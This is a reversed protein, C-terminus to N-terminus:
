AQEEVREPPDKAPAGLRTWIWYAPLGSLVIVLGPWTTESRYAVLVAMIVCAAAIYLLPVVPYGWARYPREAGPRTRRLVFIAAITLVYFILVAFVVYDLLNGYLNGYREEGGPGAGLRTRPLILLSAWIGQAVLGAAPVSRANLRGVGRFFLGDKAMVYYVRAGALILGNNCGFTSVAIAIAM